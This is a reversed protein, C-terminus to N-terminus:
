IKIRTNKQNNKTLNYFLYGGDIHILGIYQAAINYDTVPLEFKCFLTQPSVIMKNNTYFKEIIYYYKIPVLRSRQHKFLIGNSDIYINTEHKRDLILDRYTMLPSYLPYVKNQRKLAMRRQIFNGKLNKNDVIYSNKVTGIRIINDSQDLTVYKRIRYLPFQINELNM